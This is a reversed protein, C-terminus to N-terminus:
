SIKNLKGLSLDLLHGLKQSKTQLYKLNHKNCKVFHEERVVNFQLAEIANIKKPNNTMLKLSSINFYRLISGCVDYNREDESFGLNLNAEVTDAGKDQLNYAKIKEVLGIGRGEQRMYLLIGRGEKAIKKLALELQGGCDCRQSQFTEGTLCESHIRSLVISGDSVNGLKLVLHEKLTEKEVFVYLDFKAWITQLSCFAVNEINEM